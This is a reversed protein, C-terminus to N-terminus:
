NDDKRRFSSLTKVPKRSWHLKRIGLGRKKCYHKLPCLYHSKSQAFLTLEDTANDFDSISNYRDFIIAIIRINNVRTGTALMGDDGEKLIRLM